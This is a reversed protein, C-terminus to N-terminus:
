FKEFGVEREEEFPTASSSMSRSTIRGARCLSFSILRFRDLVLTRLRLFICPRSFMSILSKQDVPLYHRLHIALPSKPYTVVASFLQAAWLFKVRASWRMEASWFYNM